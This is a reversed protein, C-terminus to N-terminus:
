QRDLEQLRQEAANRAWEIAGYLRVIENYADRSQPEDRLDRFAEAKTLLAGARSEPQDPFESLVGNSLVIARRPDRLYVRFIMAMGDRAQACAQRDGPFWACLAEMERMEQKWLHM